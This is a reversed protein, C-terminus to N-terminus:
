KPNDAEYMARGAALSGGRGQSPNGQQPNPKPGGAGLHPLLEDIEADIEEATTGVLKKALVAPLGKETAWGSRLQALTAAQATEEAKRQAATAADLQEQMTAIQKEVDTRNDPGATATALKATLDDIQTQLAATATAHAAKERNIRPGLIKDLAAQDLIPEFQKEDTPTGVNDAPQGDAPTVGNPTTM